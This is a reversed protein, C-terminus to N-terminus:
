IYANIKKAIYGTLLGAFASVIGLAPFYRFIEVTELVFSAVTLQGIHFSAAGIVSLGVPSVNKKLMRRFLGMALVTCVGGAASYFFASFGSVLVATLLSRFLAFAITEPLSFLGFVVMTVINALGIKSGPVVSFVPLMSELFSLVMGVACLISLMTIKKTRM